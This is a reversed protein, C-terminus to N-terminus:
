ITESKSRSTRFYSRLPAKSPTILTIDAVLLGDFLHSGLDPLVHPVDVDQDVVRADHDGLLEHLLGVLLDLCRDVHIEHTLDPNQSFKQWCHYLHIPSANNEHTTEWTM